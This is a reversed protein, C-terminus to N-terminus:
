RDYCEERNFKFDKEIRRNKSAFDLFANITKQKDKRAIHNIVELLDSENEAKVIITKSDLSITQFM